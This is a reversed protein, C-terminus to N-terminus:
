PHSTQIFGRECLGRSLSIGGGGSVEGARWLTFHTVVKHWRQAFKRVKFFKWSKKLSCTIRNKGVELDQSALSLEPAPKEKLASLIQNSLPTRNANGGSSSGIDVVDTGEMATKEAEQELSFGSSHVYLSLIHLFEGPRASVRKAKRPFEESTKDWSSSGFEQCFETKPFTWHCGQPTCVGESIYRRKVIEKSREQINRLHKVEHPARWKVEPTIKVSLKMAIRAESRAYDLGVWKKERLSGYISIGWCSIRRSLYIKKKPRSINTWQNGGEELDGFLGKLCSATRRKGRQFWCSAAMHFVSPPNWSRWM